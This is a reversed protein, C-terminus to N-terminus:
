ALRYDLNEVVPVYMFAISFLINGNAAYSDGTAAILTVCM